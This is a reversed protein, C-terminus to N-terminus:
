ILNLCFNPFILSFDAEWYMNYIFSTHCKTSLVMNINGLARLSWLIIPDFKKKGWFLFSNFFLFLSTSSCSGWILALVILDLSVTYGPKQFKKFIRTYKSPKFSSFSNLPVLSNRLPRFLLKLFKTVSLVVFTLSFLDFIVKVGCKKFSYPLFIYLIKKKLSMLVKRSTNAM